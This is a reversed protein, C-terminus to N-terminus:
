SHGTTEIVSWFCLTFLAMSFLFSIASFHRDIATFGLM